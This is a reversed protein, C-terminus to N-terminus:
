RIGPSTAFVAVTIEFAARIVDQGETRLDASRALPLSLSYKRRQNSPFATM